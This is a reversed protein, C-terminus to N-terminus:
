PAVGLRKRDLSDGPRHHPELVKVKRLREDGANFGHVHNALAL